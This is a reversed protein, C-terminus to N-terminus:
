RMPGTFQTCSPPVCLCEVFPLPFTFLEGGEMTRTDADKFQATYQRSRQVDFLTFVSDTAAQRRHLIREQFARREVFPPLLSPSPFSFPLLLSLQYQPGFSLAALYSDEFTGSDFAM